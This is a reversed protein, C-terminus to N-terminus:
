DISRSADTADTNTLRTSVSTSLRMAVSPPESAASRPLTAIALARSAYAVNKSIVCLARHRASSAFPALFCRSSQALVPVFFGSYESTRYTSDSMPGSVIAVTGGAHAGRLLQEAAM